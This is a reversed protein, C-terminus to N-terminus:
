FLDKVGIPLGELAGGGENSLKADSAKAMDIAKEPTELIVANLKRGAEMASIHAQTLEESTFDKQRLGDRAEALSLDTLKSASM